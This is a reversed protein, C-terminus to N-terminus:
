LSSAVTVSQVTSFADAADGSSEAWGGITGAIGLYLGMAACAALVSWRVAFPLPPLQLLACRLAAQMRALACGDTAYGDPAAAPDAEDRALADALVARAAPSHRLLAMAADRDAAPWDSILTGRVRLMWDLRRPTM